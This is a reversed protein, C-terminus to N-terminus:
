RKGLVNQLIKNLKLIRMEKKNLIFHTEVYVWDRSLLEEFEYRLSNYTTYYYNKITLTEGKKVCNGYQKGYREPIVFDSIAIVKDGKNFKRM